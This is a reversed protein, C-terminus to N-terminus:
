KTKKPTAMDKGTPASQPALSDMVVITETEIITVSDMPQGTMQKEAAQEKKKQSNGCSAMFLIVAALATFMWVFSSRTKM